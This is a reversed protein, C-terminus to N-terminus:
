KIDHINKVFGVKEYFKEARKNWDDVVLQIYTEKVINFTGRLWKVSIGDPRNKSIFCNYLKKGKYWVHGMAKGDVTLLCLYHYPESIRKAGIKYTWMKEWEIESNFTDISDHILTSYAKYDDKNTIFITGPLIPYIRKNGIFRLRKKYEGTSM